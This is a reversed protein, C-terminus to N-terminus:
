WLGKNKGKKPEWTQLSNMVSGTMQLTPLINGISLGAFAVPSAGMGVLQGGIMQGTGLAISTGLAGAVDKVPNYKKVM